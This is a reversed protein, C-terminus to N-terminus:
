VLKRDTRKFPIALVRATLTVSEPDRFAVWRFFTRLAALRANRSRISNQRQHELHDLFSLIVEADLEAIHLVSPERRTKEKVFQLLLKLTDRYSAVTQPSARKNQQLHQTFFSQVLPGILSNNQKM